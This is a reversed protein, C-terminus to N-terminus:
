WSLELFRMVRRRARAVRPCGTVIPVDTITAIEPLWARLMGLPGADVPINGALKRDRGRAQEDLPRDVSAGPQEPAPRCRRRVAHARGNSVVTSSPRRATDRVGNLLRRQPSPSCGPGAWQGTFGGIGRFARLCAESVVTKPTPAIGTVWAGPTIRRGPSTDGVHCVTCAEGAGRRRRISMLEPGPVRSPFYDLM